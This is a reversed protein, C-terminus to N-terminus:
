KTTSSLLGCSVSKAVAVCCRFSWDVRLLNNSGELAADVGEEIDEDVDVDVDVDVDSM